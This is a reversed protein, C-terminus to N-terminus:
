VGVVESAGYFQLQQEYPLEDLNGKITRGSNDIYTAYGQDGSLPGHEGGKVKIKNQDFAVEILSGDFDAGTELHREVMNHAIQVLRQIKGDKTSSDIEKVGEGFLVLGTFNVDPDFIDSGSDTFGIENDEENLGITGKVEKKGAMNKFSFEVVGNEDFEHGKKKAVDALKEYLQEYANQEQQDQEKKEDPADQEERSALTEQNKEPTQEAQVAPELAVVQESTSEYNEGATEQFYRQDQKTKEKKLTAKNSQNKSEQRQTLEPRENSVEQKQNLESSSKVTVQSQRSRAPSPRRKELSSPRRGRIFPKRIPRRKPGPSTRAFKNSSYQKNTKKKVAVEEKAFAKKSTNENKEQFLSSGAFSPVITGKQKTKDMKEEPKLEAKAPRTASMSESFEANESPASFDNYEGVQGVQPAQSRLLGASASSSSSSSVQPTAEELNESSVLQPSDLEQPSEFQLGLQELQAIKAKFQEKDTIQGSGNLHFVVIQLTILLTKM